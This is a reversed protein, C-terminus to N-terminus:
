VTCHLPRSGDFYLLFSSVRVVTEKPSSPYPDVSSWPVIREPEELELKLRLQNMELENGEQEEDAVYNVALYNRIYIHHHKTLPLLLFYKEGFVVTYINANHDKHFSTPLVSGESGM